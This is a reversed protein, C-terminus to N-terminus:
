GLFGAYDIIVPKHGLVGYNDAHLDDVACENTWEAVKRLFNMGYLQVIRGIWADELRIGYDFFNRKIKHIENWNYHMRKKLVDALGEDFLWWSRTYKPQQYIKVTKGHYNVWGVCTNPMLIKEIGMKKAVEYNKVELDIYDVFDKRKIAETRPMKIVYNWEPRTFVFKSAGCYFELNNNWAFGLATDHDFFDENTECWELEDFLKDIIEKM